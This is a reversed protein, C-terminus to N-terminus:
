WHIIVLNQDTECYIYLWLNVVVVSYTFLSSQTNKSHTKYIQLKLLPKNTYPRDLDLCFRICSQVLRMQRKKNWLISRSRQQVKLPLREVWKRNSMVTPKRPVLIAATETKVWHFSPFRNHSNLTHSYPGGVWGMHGLWFYDELTVINAYILM